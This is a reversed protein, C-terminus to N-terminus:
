LVLRARLPPVHPKVLGCLLITWFRMETWATVCARACARARVRIRVCVCVCVLNSYCAQAAPAAAGGRKAGAIRRAGGGRGRGRGGRAKPIASVDEDGCIADDVEM